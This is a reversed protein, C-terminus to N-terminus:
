TLFPALQRVEHLQFFVLRATNTIQAEMLLSIDPVVGLSKVTTAPILPMGDLTFLQYGLGLEQAVSGGKRLIQYISIIKNEWFTHAGITGYILSKLGIIESHLKLLEGGSLLVSDM